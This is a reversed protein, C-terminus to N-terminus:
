GPNQCVSPRNTHQGHGHRETGFSEEEHSEHPRSLAGETALHRITHPEGEDIEILPDLLRAPHADGLDERSFALGPKAAALRIGEGLDDASRLREHDGGPPASEGNGLIPAGHFRGSHHNPEVHGKGLNQSSDLAPIPRKPLGLFLNALEVLPSSARILFSVISESEVPSRRTLRDLPKM